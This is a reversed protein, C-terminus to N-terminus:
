RRGRGLAIILQANATAAIRSGRGGIPLLLGHYPGDVNHVRTGMQGQSVGLESDEDSDPEARTLGKRCNYRVSIVFSVACFYRFNMLPAFSVAMVERQIRGELLRQQQPLTARLTNM